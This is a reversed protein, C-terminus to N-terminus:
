RIYFEEAITEITNLMILDKYYLLSREMATVNVDLENIPLADEDVPDVLEKWEELAKSLM